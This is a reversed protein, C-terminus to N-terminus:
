FQKFCFAPQRSFLCCKPGMFCAWVFYRGCECTAQLLNCVVDASIFFIKVECQAHFCTCMLRYLTFRCYVESSLFDWDSMGSVYEVDMYLIDEL